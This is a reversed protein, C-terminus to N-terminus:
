PHRIHSPHPIKNQTLIERPNWTPVGPVRKLLEWHIKASLRNRIASRDFKASGTFKGIHGHYEHLARRRYPGLSTVISAPYGIVRHGLRGLDYFYTIEIDCSMPLSMLVASSVENDDVSRTPRLHASHSEEWMGELYVISTPCLALTPPLCAM